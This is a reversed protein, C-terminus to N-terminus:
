ADPLRDPHIIHGSFYPRHNSGRSLPCLAREDRDAAFCQEGGVLHCSNCPQPLSSHDCTSGALTPKFFGSLVRTKAALHARTASRHRRVLSAFHPMIVCWLTKTK